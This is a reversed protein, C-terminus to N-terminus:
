TFRLSSRPGSIILLTYILLSFEDPCPYYCLIYEASCDQNILICVIGKKCFQLCIDTCNITGSAVDLCIQAGYSKLFLGLWLLRLWIFNYGVLPANPQRPITVRFLESGCQMELKHLNQDVQFIGPDNLSFCVPGLQPM